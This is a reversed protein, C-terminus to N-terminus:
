SKKGEEILKAPIQDYGTAKRNKLKCIAMETDVDNTPEVYPEATPVCMAWDEGSDNGTEYQLDFHQEDYESQSQLVEEKNSVTNVERDTIPLIQLKLGKRISNVEQYFKKAENKNYATEM